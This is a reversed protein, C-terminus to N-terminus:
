NSLEIRPSPLIDRIGSNVLLEFYNRVSLELGGVSYLRSDELTLMKPGLHMLTVEVMFTIICNDYNQIAVWYHKFKAAQQKFM